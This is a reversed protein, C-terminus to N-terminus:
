ADLGLVDHMTYVRGPQQKLLWRAAFVAGQAFLRRNLARHSISVLEDGFAFLVEHDGVISGARVASFGIDGAARPQQKTTRDTCMAASLDVGLGDAAAQGLVLATGSPADVKQNHHAEIIEIDAQQTKLLHGATRVLHLVLAIGLSTNAALLVPIDRAVKSIVNTDDKSLGTTGVLMAINRAQCVALAARTNEPRTFDIVLDLRSNAADLSCAIEASTNTPATHHTTNQHRTILAALQLSTDKNVEDVLLHGMKGSAGLVAIQPQPQTTM